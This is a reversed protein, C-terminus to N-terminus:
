RSATPQTGKVYKDMWTIMEWLTHELSERAAYGHAELPLTVYRVNGGNGKIAQYMRDSQIPHTGSNNDAEGHILLIPEKIKNAKMFPSVKFYMEPAEWFTRRESQFGFPTLTRNYAGSRAIGAKFLDSNALLNATMFAGYSHGGVGVRGRDTVGMEVAKDIAAEASAVIQEVYTNNMTEPDGIVPMTADDLVAYGLLAFFLHSMGGFTTFRNASGSVQGATGADSFELPYAWVVTPLPTGEKYDPPLYLTFSLDVGDKRKYRVLQKKIGRLQPTPDPFNTLAQKDGAGATRVFYNPPTSQTEYRTIFRSGDDALLTVFSEYSKDDCQFLRESKLTKLDFRDLFPRDGKPSAGVGSLFIQDGNQHMVAQGNPLRKMVPNGPDNYRDQSSRDWIVRAQQSPNDANLLFTRAWRRNRDNDRVFVLGDKEGWAMGAFRHETKVLEVPQGTFPAKLMKVVDRPSAKKKTDGGDLAEVWVLTAPETPRWNTNRPGTPVGEIPVQDALPLDALKYVSKGGHDWVETLRPFSGATLLYSYPQHITTVLFHNGDPSPEVSGFIAPKGFPTVRGTAANILALQATAYYEYLKEDHPNRLLDQFTPAPTAKGYNEQVNPGTPVAPAAPPAGRGAVITYCLLTKGDPLWQVADSGGGGRGGGGGFATNLKVGSVQRLKGTAADGIWLEVGGGASNSTTNTVAFQKGDNSWEPMGFNPNPPLALPTEKGDVINKLTLKTIRRPNHPGNTKPNIRSGALRLMPEALEAITPYRVPTALLMKDRAPSISVMASDPADLVDLVAKPPKQYPTQSQVNFSPALLVAGLLYIILRNKILSMVHIEM